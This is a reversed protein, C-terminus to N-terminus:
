MPHYTHVLCAPLCAPLKARSNSYSRSRAPKLGYLESMLMSSSVEMSVKIYKQYSYINNNVILGYVLHPCQKLQLYVVIDHLPKLSINTLLDSTLCVLNIELLGFGFNTVIFDNVGCAFCCKGGTCCGSLMHVLFTLCFLACCQSPNGKQKESSTVQQCTENFM